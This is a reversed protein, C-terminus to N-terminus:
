NLTHCLYWIYKTYALFLSRCLKSNKINDIIDAAIKEFSKKSVMQNLKFREDSSQELEFVVDEINYDVLKAKLIAAEVLEQNSCIVDEEKKLIITTKFPTKQRIIYETPAITTRRHTTVPFDHKKSGIIHQVLSTKGAGTCGILYIKKIAPQTGLMAQINKFSRM